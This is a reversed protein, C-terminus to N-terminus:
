CNTSSTSCTLCSYDCASCAAAGSDFFGSDCPCRSSNLTRNANLPCASCSVGDVLCEGCSYDCQVCYNNTDENAFGSPCADYCRQELELYYRFNVCNRFRYHMLQKSIYNFSSFSTMNLPPLPSFDVQFRIGTNINFWNSGQIFAFYDYGSTPVDFSFAGQANNEAFSYGYDVYRQKNQQVVSKDAFLVAM